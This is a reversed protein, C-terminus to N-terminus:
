RKRYTSRTQTGALDGTSNTLILDTDTLSEVTSEYEGTAREYTYVIKTDAAALRWTGRVISAGSGCQNTGDFLTWADDEGYEETNDSRCALDSAPKWPNAGVRSESNTQQWTGLLRRAADSDSSCGHTAACLAVGVILRSALLRTQM